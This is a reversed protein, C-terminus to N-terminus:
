MNIPDLPHQEWLEETTKMYINQVDSSLLFADRTVWENCKALEKVNQKYRSMIQSLGLTHM